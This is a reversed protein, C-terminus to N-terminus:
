NQILEKTKSRINLLEANTIPEGDRKGIPILRAMENGSHHEYKRVIEDIIKWSELDYKQMFPTNSIFMGNNYIISSGYAKIKRDRYFEFKHFISPIVVGTEWWCFFDDFLACDHTQLSAVQAFFMLRNLKMPMLKRLRKQKSAEIFANAVALASYM